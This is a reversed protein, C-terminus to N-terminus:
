KGDLQSQRLLCFSQHSRVYLPLAKKLTPICQSLRLHCPLSPSVLVVETVKALPYRETTVDAGKLLAGNGHFVIALSGSPQQEMSFVCPVAKLLYEGAYYRATGTCLAPRQTSEEVFEPSVGCRALLESMKTDETSLVEHKTSPEGYSLLPQLNWLEKNM